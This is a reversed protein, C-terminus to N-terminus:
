SAFAAANGWLEKVRADRGCGLRYRQYADKKAILGFRTLVKESQKYYDQHYAEAPWFATEDLIPTVITQGLEAQAAAKATGAAARSEADDVFIATSYTAGRDCFQGGADTPDISRFFLHLLQAETVQSPDYDIRVAEIHGTGGRSVQKYTPNESSGGTYGSVVETVGQVKEFDAEICWFCGGALTLSKTEAACAQAGLGMAITAALLLPRGRNLIQRM